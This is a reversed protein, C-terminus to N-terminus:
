RPKGGALASQIATEDLQPALMRIFDIVFKRVHSKARLRAYTTTQEFLHSADRARM